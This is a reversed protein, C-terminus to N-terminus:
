KFSKEYDVLKIDVFQAPRPPMDGMGPALQLWGIREKGNSLNLLITLRCSSNNILRFPSISIPSFAMEYVTKGPLHRIASKVDEVEGTPKGFSDWSASSAKMRWVVPKKSFEGILYEFDDSELGATEASANKMTDIAIQLSDGRWINNKGFSEEPHFGDKEVIVAIFFNTENWAFRIEGRIKKEAETWISRCRANRIDLTVPMVSAPWESLDGDIEINAVVKPIYLGNIRIKHEADRFGDIHLKMTLMQPTLSIPVPAPFKLLESKEGYIKFPKRQGACEVYGNLTQLTVNSLRIAFTNKDCLEVAHRLPKEIGVQKASTIFKELEATSLESELYVPFDDLKVQDAEFANGMVDYFNANCGFTLTEPAGSWQWLVAIRKEGKDYIYCRKNGGIRVRRAVPADGLLDVANRVMYLFVGPLWHHEPDGLVSTWAYGLDIGTAQFHFYTDVGCAFELLAYRLDRAALKLSIPHIRNDPFTPFNINGSESSLIRCDPRYKKLVAQFDEQAAELDPMEPLQRYPHETLYDLVDAAGAKLYADLFEPKLHCGPGAIKVEPDLEHIAQAMQVTAVACSEPDALTYKAPDPNASRGSWAEPENFLEYIDVVGRNRIIEEKFYKEIIARSNRSIHFASGPQDGAINLMVLFGANHFEAASNFGGRDKRDTKAWLRVAGLGFDRFLRITVAHDAPNVHVNSGWRKSSKGPSRLIGTYFVHSFREGKESEATFILNLPGLLGVPLPINFDMQRPLSEADELRGELVKDGRWNLLEWSVTCKKHTESSINLIGRLMEGAYLYGYETHLTGSLVIAPPPLDTSQAALQCTADDLWIRGHPTVMPSVHSFDATMAPDGFRKVGPADQGFQPILLEHKEWRTGVRVIKEYAAGHATFLGINVQTDPKEAKMYVAFVLPKGIIYPVANFMLRNSGAPVPDLRFSHTGSHFVQDDISVQMGPEAVRVSSPPYVNYFGREAGGNFIHNNRADVKSDDSKREYTIRGIKLEPVNAFSIRFAVQTLKDPFKAELRHLTPEPTLAVSQKTWYHKDTKGEFYLEAVAGAPGALEVEVIVNEKPYPTLFYYLDLMKGPFEKQFRAANVILMGAKESVEVLNSQQFDRLTGVQKKGSYLAINGSTKDAQASFDDWTGSFLPFLLLGTIFLLICKM